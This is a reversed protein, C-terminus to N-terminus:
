IFGNSVSESDDPLLDNYKANNLRNEINHLLSAFKHLGEMCDRLENLKEVYEESQTDSDLIFHIDTYAKELLEIGHDYRKIYQELAPHIYKVFNKSETMM